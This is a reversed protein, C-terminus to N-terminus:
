LSFILFGLLELLFKPLRIILMDFYTCCVKLLQLYVYLIAIVLGTYRPGTPQICGQGGFMRVFVLLVVKHSVELVSVIPRQYHQTHTQVM